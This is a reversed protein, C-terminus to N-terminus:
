RDDIFESDVYQVTSTSAVHMCPKKIERNFIADAKLAKKASFPTSRPLSNVSSGTIKYETISKDFKQLDNVRCVHLDM